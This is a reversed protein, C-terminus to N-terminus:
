IIGSDPDIKKAIYNTTLVLLMGIASQFLGAATAISFKRQQLGLRYVYTDIIDAVSIVLDNSMAFIQDFGAYMMEGIRFFLLIVITERISAMTIHWMQRWRGAGDISAAEYLNQDIGSIASLYVITGMGAGKWIHSIVIVARFHDKDTLLNPITGTYGFVEAIGKIAGSSPFFIAYLLGYIVVWSVFNPLIVATQVFKKAKSRQIENILLSLIIPFPFGFILKYISILVNNQLARIFATRSFLNAFNELGVWPASLIDSTVKYDKFAITIGYMPVYKFLIIYTLGPLIMLYLLYDKRMYRLFRQLRSERHNLTRSQLMASMTGGGVTFFYTTTLHDPYLALSKTSKYQISHLRIPYESDIVEYSIIDHLRIDQM